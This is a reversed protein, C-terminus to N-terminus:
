ECVPKLTGIGDGIWYMLLYQQFIQQAMTPNYKYLAEAVDGHRIVNHYRDCELCFTKRNSAPLVSADLFQGLESKARMHKILQKEFIELRYDKTTILDILTPANSDLEWFLDRKDREEVM